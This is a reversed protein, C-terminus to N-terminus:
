KRERISRVMVYLAGRGGHTQHADEFNTVMPSLEASRLWEPILRKLVGSEQGFADRRRTEARDSGTQAFRKGGKGTIVLLCREGHNSASVLRHKLRDYAIERNSGHLDLVGDPEVQGRRQKRALHPDIRSAPEPAKGFGTGFSPIPLERPRPAHGTERRPLRRAPRLPTATTPRNKLPTITETVAKWLSADEESLRGKKKPRKM